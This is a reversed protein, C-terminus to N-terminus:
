ENGRNKRTIDWVDKITSIVYDSSEILEDPVEEQQELTLIGIDAKKIAKEDNSHNGVMTVHYGEEKLKTVIRGKCTRDCTDHVNCADISLKTAIKLLSDKNDGSAIFIEYGNNNLKNMLDKTGEFFIGGATYVYEIRRKATNVILASGSCVEIDYEKVLIRASQALDEITSPDDELIEIIEDKTTNKHSYSIEFENPYKKLYDYIRGEHKILNKTPTQFVIILRDLNENAIGITNSEFLINESPMHKLVSIRQLITGANDFVIAKM